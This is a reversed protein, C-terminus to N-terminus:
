RRCLHVTETHARLLVCPKRPCQDSVPLETHWCCWWWWWCRRVYANHAGQAGRSTTPRAPKVGRLWNLHPPQKKRFNSRATRAILAIPRYLALRAAGRRFVSPGKSLDSARHWTQPAGTALPPSTSWGLPLSYLTLFLLAASVTSLAQWTLHHTRTCYKERRVARERERDIAREIKGGRRKSIRV